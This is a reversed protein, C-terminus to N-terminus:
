ISPNAVSHPAMRVIWGDGSNLCLNWMPSQIGRPSRPMIFWRCSNLLLRPRYCSKSVSELGYGAMVRARMVESIDERTVKALDRHGKGTVSRHNESIISKLLGHEGEDDAPPGKSKSRSANRNRPAASVSRPRGSKLTLSAMATATLPFRRMASPSYTRHQNLSRSASLSSQRHYQSTPTSDRVAPFPLRGKRDDDGEPNVESSVPNTAVDSVTPAALTPPISHEIDLEWPDVNHMYSPLIRDDASRYATGTSLALEGRASWTHHAAITPRSIDLAGEKSVTLIYAHGNTGDLSPAFTFSSLSQQFVKGTM